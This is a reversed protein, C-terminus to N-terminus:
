PHCDSRRVAGKKCQSLQESRGFGMQKMNNLCQRRRASERVPQVAPALLAVLVGIVAIVVIVVLLEVLTFGREDLLRRMVNEHDAQAKALIGLDFTSSCPCSDCSESRRYARRPNGLNSVLRNKQRLGTVIPRTACFYRLRTTLLSSEVRLCCGCSRRNRRFAVTGTNM